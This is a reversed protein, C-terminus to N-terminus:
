FGWMHDKRLSLRLFFFKLLAARFPLAKGCQAAAFGRREGFKIILFGQLRLQQAM